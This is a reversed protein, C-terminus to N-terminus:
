VPVSFIYRFFRDPSRHRVWDDATYVTRRFKRSAEGYSIDKAKELKPPRLRVPLTVSITPSQASLTPSSDYQLVPARDSILPASEQELATEVALSTLPEPVPEPAPREAVEEVAPPPPAEYSNTAEYYVQEQEVVPAGNTAGNNAYNLSDLYSGFVPPPAAATEAVFQEESAMANLQQSTDEAPSEAAANTNTNDVAQNSFKAYQDDYSDYLSTTTASRPAKMYSLPSMTNFASCSSLSMIAVLALSMTAWRRSNCYVDSM